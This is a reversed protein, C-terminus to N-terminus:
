LKRNKIMSVMAFMIHQSINNLFGIVNIHILDYWLTVNKYIDLIGRPFNPVIIPEVQHVKRYVTKGQLHPVSPGYIEWSDWIM